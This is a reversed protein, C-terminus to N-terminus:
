FLQLNNYNIHEAKSLKIEDSNDWTAAFNHLKYSGKIPKTGNIFMFAIGAITSVFDSVSNIIQSVGNLSAGTLAQKAAGGKYFYKEENTLELM